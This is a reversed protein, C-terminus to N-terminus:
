VRIGQIKITNRLDKPNELNYNYEGSKRRIGLIEIPNGPNWHIGLIKM